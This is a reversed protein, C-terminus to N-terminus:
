GHVYLNQLLIMSAHAQMLDRFVEYWQKHVGKSQHCVVYTHM